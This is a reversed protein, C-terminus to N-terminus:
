AGSINVQRKQIKDSTVTTLFVLGLVFYSALALASYRMNNTAANIAGYSFTGIVVSLNWTVDYFSFYSAHDITNEPILKSYTARALSQIGGMVMGVVVALLYFQMETQIFFAGVCVGIWIVIMVQLSLMNGVRRSLRAFLWAGFAAVIQIILIAKILNEGPMGIVEEIPQPGQAPFAVASFM